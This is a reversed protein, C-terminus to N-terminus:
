KNELSLKKKEVEIYVVKVFHFWVLVEFINRQREINISNFKQTGGVIRQVNIGANLFM